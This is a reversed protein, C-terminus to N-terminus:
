RRLCRLAEVTAAGDGNMFSEMSRTRLIESSAHSQPNRRHIQVIPNRHRRKWKIAHQPWNTSRAAQQSWALSLSIALLSLAHSNRTIASNRLRKMKRSGRRM